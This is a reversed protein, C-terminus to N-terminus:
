FTNWPEVPLFAFLSNSKNQSIAQSDFLIDWWACCHTKVLFELMDTKCLMTVESSCHIKCSWLFYSISYCDYFSFSTAACKIWLLGKKEGQPIHFNDDILLYYLMNPGDLSNKIALFHDASVVNSTHISFSGNKLMVIYTCFRWLLSLFM